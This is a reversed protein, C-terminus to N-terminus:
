VGCMEKHYEEYVSVIQPRNKKIWAVLDDEDVSCEFGGGVVGIYKFMFAVDENHDAEFIAVEDAPYDGRFGCQILDSIEKDSAKKAWRIADFPVEVKHDDSHCEAKIKM